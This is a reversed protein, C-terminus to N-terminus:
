TKKEHHSTWSVYGDDALPATERMRPPLQGNARYFALCPCSYRRPTLFCSMNLGARCGEGWIGLLARLQDDSLGNYESHLFETMTTTRGYQEQFADLTNQLAPLSDAKIRCITFTNAESDLTMPTNSRLTYYYKTSRWLRLTDPIPTDTQLKHPYMEFFLSIGSSFCPSKPIQCIYVQSHDPQHGDEDEM